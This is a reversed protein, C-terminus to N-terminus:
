VLGRLHEGFLSECEDRCLFEMSFLLRTSIIEKTYILDYINHLTSSLISEFLKPSLQLGLMCLIM